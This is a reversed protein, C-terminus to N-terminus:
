AAQDKISSEVTTNTLQQEYDVPTAYGIGSHRRRRNYVVEIWRAVERRAQARTPWTRRDYFETKLTAFFSESMANDFCVGTRGMSQDIGLEKTVRHLQASTYQTGRDAHFVVRGQFGGRLTKATRLAREVLDADQHSDMAWGLVRRSCADRVACLFLWGEQTRLYTIDSIWVRNLEGVDWRRHVRDPIRHSPVGPITTVPTFMRPCIGELGQRRMSAAVTKVNVEVGVAHLDATIRPAGYVRDSATFFDRVQQDLVARRAAQPGPGAARQAVWRYYGSRSVRLLRAMRSIEYNAKEQAM